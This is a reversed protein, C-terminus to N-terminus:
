VGLAAVDVPLKGVAQTGDCHFPIRRSKCFRAIEDVPLLVGTENNAWMITALATDDTLQASLEDLDIAGGGDVEVEVIEAGEKALQACLERTASHEVMTTVVRRRPARAALLGRIATNIAETGGGTFLLES